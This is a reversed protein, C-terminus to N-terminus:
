YFKSDEEFFDDAKDERGRTRTRQQRIGFAENLWDIEIINHNVGWLYNKLNKIYEDNDILKKGFDGLHDELMYKFKTFIIDKDYEKIGLLKHLNLKRKDLEKKISDDDRIIYKHPVWRDIRRNYGLYHVYYEM